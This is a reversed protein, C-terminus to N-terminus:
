LSARREAIVKLATKTGQAVPLVASTNKETRGAVEETYVCRQNDPPLTPHAPSLLDDVRM